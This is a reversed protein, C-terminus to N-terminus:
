GGVVEWHGGKDPGFLAERRAALYTKYFRRQLDYLLSIGDIFDGIVKMDIHPVIRALSPALVDSAHRKLFDVYNIKKGNAGNYARAAVRPCTTFDIPEM